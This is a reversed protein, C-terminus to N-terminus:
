HLQSLANSSIFLNDTAKRKSIMCYAKLRLQQGIQFDGVYIVAVRTLIQVGRQTVTSITSGKNPTRSVWLNHMEPLAVLVPVKLCYYGSFVAQKVCGDKQGL